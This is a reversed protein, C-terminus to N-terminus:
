VTEGPYVSGPPHQDNGDVWFRPQIFTYSPLRGTLADQYFQEM